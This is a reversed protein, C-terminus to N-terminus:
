EGNAGLNPSRARVAKVGNVYLQRFPTTVGTASYINKSADSLTWGKVPQGGTILPREGPYALYKVYHGNQGSDANSFTVTSSIPYIGARLYVALDATMSALRPRVLDRAKALSRVPQALTGRNSGDGNTATSSACGVAVAVALTLCRPAAHRSILTRRPILM